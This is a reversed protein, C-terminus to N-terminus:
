LPLIKHIMLTYYISSWQGYQNCRSLKYNNLDALPLKIKKNKINDIREYGTTDAEHFTSSNQQIKM